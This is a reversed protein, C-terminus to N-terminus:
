PPARRHRAVTSHGAMQDAIAALLHDLVTAIHTM